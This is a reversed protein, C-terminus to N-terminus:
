TLRTINISTHIFEGFSSASGPTGGDLIRAYIAFQTLSQLTLQKKYPVIYTIREHSFYNRCQVKVAPSIDGNDINLPDGYGIAVQLDAFADYFEKNPPTIHLTIDFLYSGATLYFVQNTWITMFDAGSENEQSTWLLQRWVNLDSNQLVMKNAGVLHISKGVNSVIGYGALTTPKNTITLWDVQTVGYGALTTPHSVIQNWPVTVVGYGALTTPKNTIVSWDTPTQDQNLTVITADTVTNIVTKIPQDTFINARGAIDLIVPNTNAVTLDMDSYTILPTSTDFEYTYIRGFSLPDGNNDFWQQPVSIM